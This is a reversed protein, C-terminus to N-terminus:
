IVECIDLLHTSKTWSPLRGTKHIVSTKLAGVTLIFKCLYLEALWWYTAHSTAIDSNLLSGGYTEGLRVDWPQLSETNIAFCCDKWGKVNAPFYGGGLGNNLQSSTWEQQPTNTTDAIICRVFCCYEFEVWDNRKICVITPPDSQIHGWSYYPTVARLMGQRFCLM